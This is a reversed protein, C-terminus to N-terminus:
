LCALIHQFTLFQSFLQKYYDKFSLSSAVVNTFYHKTFHFLVQVLKVLSVMVMTMVAFDLLVLLQISFLMVVVLLIFNLHIVYSDLLIFSAPHHSRPRWRALHVSVLDFQPFYSSPHNPCCPWCRHEM